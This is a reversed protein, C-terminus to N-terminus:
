VREEHPVRESALRHRYFRMFGVFAAASAAASTALRLWHGTRFEQAVQQLYAASHVATGEDFLVQNKPWFYAVSVLFGGLFQIVFSGLLWNRASAVRWGMIVSGIGGLLALAGVPPFFDSPGRVVFFATATQLSRPVDYFINPYIIFTEFVNAGLHIMLTWLYTLVLAFTIRQKQM